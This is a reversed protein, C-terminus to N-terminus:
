AADEGYYLTVVHTAEAFFLWREALTGLSASVAALAALLGAPWGDLALTPLLCALPLGFAAVHVVRRLRDRHKRAIRFGMEQLLYNEETHPAALLRVKGLHGLGTASAATAVPARDAHSRWYAAKATWGAALAAAAVASALAGDGGTLRELLALWLGGVGLGLLLYCPLTWPNYWAPIAKLSRYIMATCWVTAAAGAAALVGATAWGGEIRGLVVWGFGFLVAPVYTAVAAVGERSLWSSRWQSFARWAREPHGLHFTSALLGASVLALALGLGLGGLWRDQSLLGLPVGLGLLFLMGYGTGSAVTFLVISPAPHL